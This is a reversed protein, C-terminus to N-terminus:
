CFGIFCVSTWFVLMVVSFLLPKFFFDVWDVKSCLMQVIQGWALSLNELCISFELRWHEKEKCLCPNCNEFVKTCELILCILVCVTPLQFCTKSKFIPTVSPFHQVPNSIDIHVWLTKIYVSLCASLCLSLLSLLSYSLPSPFSPPPSVSTLASSCICQTRACSHVCSNGMETRPSLMPCFVSMWSGILM